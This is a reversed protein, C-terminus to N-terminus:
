FISAGYLKKAEVPRKIAQKGRADIQQYTLNFPMISKYAQKRWNHVPRRGPSWQYATVLGRGLELKQKLEL